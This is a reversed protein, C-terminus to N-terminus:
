ALLLACPCGDEDHLSVVVSTNRETEEAAHAILPRMFSYLPHLMLTLSMSLDKGLYLYITYLM